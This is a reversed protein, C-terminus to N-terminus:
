KSLARVLPARYDQDKENWYVYGNKLDLNFFSEYYDDESDGPGDRGFLKLKVPENEMSITGQHLAIVTFSEVENMQAGRKDLGYSAALAAILRDSEPGTRSFVVGSRYVRDKIVNNADTDIGAQIGKVVTVAMGVTEGEYSGLLRFRYHSGTDVLDVIRLTCDIFGEESFQTLVPYGHRDVKMAPAAQALGGLLAFCILVHKM